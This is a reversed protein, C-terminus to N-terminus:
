GSTRASVQDPIRYHSARRRLNDTEGIYVSSQGAGGLWLRYLGPDLPLNPFTLKGDPGFEITAANTWEFEVSMKM